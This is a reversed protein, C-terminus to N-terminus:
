RKFIKENNTNDNNNHTHTWTAWVHITWDVNSNLRCTIWYMHLETYSRKLICLTWYMLINPHINHLLHWYMQMETCIHNLLTFNVVYFKPHTHKVIYTVRYQHWYMRPETWTCNLVGITWYMHTVAYTWKLSIHSLTHKIWFIHPETMNTKHDLKWDIWQIQM